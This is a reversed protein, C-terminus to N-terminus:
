DIKFNLGIKKLKNYINDYGRELYELNNITSDGNIIGEILLSAACRLDTPYFSAGVLDNSKNIIVKNDKVIINANTKKLEDCVSFRSNFIVEEFSSTDNARIFLPYMLPMQDTSLEPYHNSSVSISNLNSKYITISNGKIKYKVNALSFCKIPSSLHKIEVNKIKLKKSNVGICMYTFAEIRDPIIKHVIKNKFKINGYIVIDNKVRYVKANGKNIYKILDDIEPETSANEIVSKGEIKSALIILNVTAGLSKKPMKYIFPHLRKASIYVYDDGAVVDCGASKFGDLHFDIPRLGIKCGGPLSIYVKNFLALFVSMLYYSARFKKVEDFDLKLDECTGKLLLTRRRKKVTYGVRKLITNMNNIDSIDPVNKIISERASVVSAAIIPLSANKSGSIRVKGEIKSPFIVMKKM